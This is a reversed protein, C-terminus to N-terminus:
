DVEDMSFVIAGPSTHPINPEPLSFMDIRDTDNHVVKAGHESDPLADPLTFMISDTDMYIVRAEHKAKLYHRTDRIVERGASSITDAAVAFPLRGMSALGFQYHESM